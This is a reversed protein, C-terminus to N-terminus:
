VRWKAVGLIKEKAAQTCHIIEFGQPSVIETQPVELGFKNTGTAPGEAAIQSLSAGSWQWLRISNKLIVTDGKRSVFDGAHVGATHSRVIVFKAKSGSKKKVIKKSVM